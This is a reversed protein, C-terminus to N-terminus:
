AKRPPWRKDVILLTPVIILAPVRPRIWFAKTQMSSGVEELRKLEECLSNMMEAQAESSAVADANKAEQSKLSEETARLKEELGSNM